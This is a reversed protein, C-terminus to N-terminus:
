ARDLMTLEWLDRTSTHLFPTLALMGTRGISRELYRLEDFTAKLTPDPEADFGAERMM